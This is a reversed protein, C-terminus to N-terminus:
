KLEIDLVRTQETITYKVGSTKPDRFKEPLNRASVKPTDSNGGSSSGSGHPTEMVGIMLEGPVVETIEYGGTEQISAASFNNDPGIIQLLGSTLPKGEYTVTGKLTIKKVGKEACGAGLTLGAVGLLFFSVVRLLQMAM